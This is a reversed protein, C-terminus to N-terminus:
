EPQRYKLFLEGVFLRLLHPYQTPMIEDSTSSKPFLFLADKIFDAATVISFFAHSAQSSQKYVHVIM